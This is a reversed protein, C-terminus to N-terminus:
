FRVVIGAFAEWQTLTNSDVRVACTGVVGDFGCFFDGSSRIFAARVRAELRAGIRAEPALLLGTGLSGSVYVDDDNSTAVRTAGITASLFPRVTPQLGHYLGGVEIADLEVDVAPLVENAESRRTSTAYSVEWLTNAKDRWNVLLGYATDADLGVTTAAGALHFEGGTRNGAVPTLSFELPGEAAAGIAPNLMLMVSITSTLTRATTAARIM